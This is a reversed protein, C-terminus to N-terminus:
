LRVLSPTHRNCVPHYQAVLDKQRVVRAKYPLVEFTFLRPQWQLVYPKRGSLYNLLARRINFSHSIYVWRGPLALGYVGSEEPANQIVSTRTLSFRNLDDWEVTSGATYGLTNRVLIPFVGSM